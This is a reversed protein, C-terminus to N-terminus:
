LYAGRACVTYTIGPHASCFLFKTYGLVRLHLFFLYPFQALVKKLPHSLFLSVNLEYVDESLSPEDDRPASPPCIMSTWQPSEPPNTGGGADKKEGASLFDKKRAIAGKPYEHGADREVESDECSLGGEDGSEKAGDYVCKWQLITHDKAGITYITGDGAAWSVNCIPGAHGLVSIFGPRAQCPNHVIYLRGASNGSAM